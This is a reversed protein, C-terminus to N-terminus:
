KDKRTLKKSSKIRAKNNQIKWSSNLQKPGVYQNIIRLKMKTIFIEWEFMQIRNHM